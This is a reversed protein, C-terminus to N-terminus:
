NTTCKDITHIRVCTNMCTHTCSSGFWQALIMIHLQGQYLPALRLLFFGHPGPHLANVAPRTTPYHITSEFKMNASHPELIGHDWQCVLGQSAWAKGGRCHVAAVNTRCRDMWEEASQRCKRAAARHSYCCQPRFRSSM